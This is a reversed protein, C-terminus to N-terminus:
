TESFKYRAELSCFLFVSPRKGSVYNAPIVPDSVFKKQVVNGKEIRIKMTNAADNSSALSSTESALDDKCICCLVDPELLHCLCGPNNVSKRASMAAVVLTDCPCSINLLYSICTCSERM